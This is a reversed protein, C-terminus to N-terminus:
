SLCFFSLLLQTCLFWCDISMFFRIYVFYFDASSACPSVSIPACWFDASSSKYGASSYSSEGPCEQCLLCQLLSVVTSRLVSMIPRLPKSGPLSNVYTCSAKLWSIKYGIAQYSTLEEPLGPLTRLPQSSFDKQWLHVLYMRVFPIEKHYAFAGNVHLWKVERPFDVGGDLDM